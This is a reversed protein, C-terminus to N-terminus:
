VLLVTGLAVIVAVCSFPTSSVHASVLEPLPLHEMVTLSPAPLAVILAAPYSDCVMAHVASRGTTGRGTWSMGAPTPLCIESTKRPSKSPWPLRTRVSAGPLPRCATMVAQHTLRHDINLDGAHHTYVRHPRLAHIRQELPQVIELLSLSDMRNDPMGLAHHSRVGLLEMAQVCARERVSRDFEAGRASIGDAMFIVHVEDGEAVHRAMAGGCGLVEDDAHAAVILITEPM